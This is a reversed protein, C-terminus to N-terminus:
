FANEIHEVSFQSKNQFKIGIVDFRPQKNQIKKNRLYIQGLKRIRNQKAKTLSVLPSIQHEEALRSKVEVFVLYEAISAVLDIEGARCRFNKECIQYGKKSLYEAARKEGLVGLKKLDSVSNSLLMM